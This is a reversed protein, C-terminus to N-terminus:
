SYKRYMRKSKSRKLHKKDSKEIFTELKEELKIKYTKRKKEMKIM